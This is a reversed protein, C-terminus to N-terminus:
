LKVLSKANSFFILGRVSSTTEYIGGVWGGGGVQESSVWQYHEVTILFMCRTVGQGDIVQTVRDEQKWFLM